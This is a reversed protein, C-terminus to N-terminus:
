SASGGARAAQQRSVAERAIGSHASRQMAATLVHALDRPTMPPVIFDAAGADQTDLYLKMSVVRSMVIVPTDKATEQVMGVVDKWTGDPLTVDTLVLDIPAAQELLRFAQACQHARTTRVEGEHLMEELGRFSHPDNHVLLVSRPTKM